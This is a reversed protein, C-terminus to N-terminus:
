LVGFSNILSYIMLQQVQNSLNDYNIVENRRKGIVLYFAMSIVTLYLWNSIEVNVVAGGYLVRILFGSVLITIDILPINKLGFSYFINIILYIILYICNKIDIHAFAFFVTSLILLITIAIYAEKISVKGSAIPRKKKEKHLKDKEKDKIIYVVSCIFCFSIFAYLIKTLYTIDFLNGSFFLPFFILMNKLYHKIRILQLYKRM